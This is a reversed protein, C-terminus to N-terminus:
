RHKGLVFVGNLITTQFTVTKNVNDVTFNSIPAWNSSDSLADQLNDEPRVNVWYPIYGYNLSWNITSRFPLVITAPVALQRCSSVLFNIDSLYHDIYFSDVQQYNALRFDYFELYYEDTVAGAPISVQVDRDASGQHNQHFTYDRGSSTFSNSENEMFDYQKKCSCSLLLPVFLFFRIVSRM